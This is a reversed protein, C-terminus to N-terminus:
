APEERAIPATPTLVTPRGLRPDILDRVSDGLLNFAMVTIFIALGPFLAYWWQVMFYVRGDSAMLGWDTMPAQVGLGIFSLAAGTLIAAGVDLTAQVLVPTMLNPMIHRRVITPGRVGIARAADVFHRQRLSSAQGRAIRTYWPWWSVAIALIANRLSPGLAAAVAIALLLPPFSLFIDTIRMILEDLRGGVYGAIAGLPVGIGAAVVVVAVGILLSVRGGYLMRSLIDRGLDDTGLPFDASPAAFRNVVDPTGRGQAPHPSLWPALLSALTLVVIVAFAVAATRDRKLWWGLRRLGGIVKARLATV